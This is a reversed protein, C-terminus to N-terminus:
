AEAGAKLRDRLEPLLDKKSTYDMRDLPTVITSLVNLAHSVIRAYYQTALTDAAARDAPPQEGLLTHQLKVFDRRIGKGREILQMASVQDAERLVAPLVAIWEDIEEALEAMSRTLERSPPASGVLEALGALDKAYDGIREVDKVVNMISLCFPLGFRRPDSLVEAFAARRIKRQLKNIGKDERKVQALSPAEDSRRFWADSAFRVLDVSNRLMLDLDAVMVREKQESGFLALLERLM